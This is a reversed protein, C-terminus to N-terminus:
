PVLALTFGHHDARAAAQGLILIATGHGRDHLYAGSGNTIRFTFREPLPAFGKQTPGTLALTLDGRPTTIVIQGRAKGRVVFGLQHINGTVDTKGLPNVFGHGALTYSKGVDPLASVVQYTGSLGGNLKVHVDARSPDSTAVTTISAALGHWAVIGGSLPTVPELNEIQPQCRKLRRM